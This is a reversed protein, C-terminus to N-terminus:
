EAFETVGEITLGWAQAYDYIWDTEAESCAVDGWEIQKHALDIWALVVPFGRGPQTYRIIAPDGSAGPGDTAVGINGAESLGMGVQTTQM